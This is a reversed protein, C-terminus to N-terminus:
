EKLSLKWVMRYSTFIIHCKIIYLTIQLNIFLYVIKMTVTITMTAEKTFCKRVVNIDHLEHYGLKCLVKCHPRMTLSSDFIPGLNRVERCPKIIVRDIDLSVDKLKALQQHTKQKSSFFIHYWTQTATNQHDLRTGSVISLECSQKFIWILNHITSMILRYRYYNM